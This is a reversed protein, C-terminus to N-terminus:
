LMSEKVPQTFAIIRQDLAQKMEAAIAQRAAVPDIQYQACLEAARPQDVEQQSRLYAKVVTLERRPVRAFPDASM